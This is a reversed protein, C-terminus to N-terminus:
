SQPSPQAAAGAPPLASAARGRGQDRKQRLRQEIRFQAEAADILSGEIATSIITIGRAGKLQGVFPLLAPQRMEGAMDVKCFLLVQPRWNKTHLSIKELELLAQRARHYRLGRLSDGWQASVKRFEIYKYLCGVLIIAVIPTIFYRGFESAFM